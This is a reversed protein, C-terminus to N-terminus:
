SGPNSWHTADRGNFNSPLITLQNEQSADIFGLKNKIMLAMQMSSEWTMYNDEVLTEALVDGPQDSPHLYLPHNSNEWPATSKSGQSEFQTVTKSADEGGM